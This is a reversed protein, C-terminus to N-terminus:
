FKQPCIDEAEKYLQRDLKLIEQKERETQLERRIGTRETKLQQATKQLFINVLQFAM